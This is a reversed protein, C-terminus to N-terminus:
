NPTQRWSHGKRRWDVDMAKGERELDMARKWIQLIVRVSGGFRKVAKATVGPKLHADKHNQLLFHLIEWWIKNTMNLRGM